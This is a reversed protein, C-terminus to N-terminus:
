HQLYPAPDVLAFGPTETAFHRLWYAHGSGFLVIVRDGPESVADLKSFIIANRAYWGYNVAAGAPDGQQTLKLLGYYFRGHQSTIENPDNQRALLQSVSLKTQLTAFTDANEQVDALMNEIFGEPGNKAVFAQVREFPFFAVDGERTDIGYVRSIGLQSALRYAIQVTEDRDTTLQDPSFQLYGTDLFDDRPSENEVMIATPRFAALQDALASLQAQRSQVLVDDAEPNVLDAGPNGMHYTGLVMVEVVPTAPMKPQSACSTLGIIALAALIDGTRM